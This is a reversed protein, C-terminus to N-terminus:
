RENGVVVIRRSFAVTKSDVLKRQGFGALYDTQKRTGMEIHNTYIELTKRHDHCLFLQPQTTVDDSEQRTFPSPLQRLPSLTFSSTDAEPLRITFRVDSILLLCGRCVIAIADRSPREFRVCM